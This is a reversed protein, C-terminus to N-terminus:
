PLIIEKIVGLQPDVDIFDTSYPEHDPHIVWIKVKYQLSLLGLENGNEDTQLFEIGFPLCDLPTKFFGNEDTMSHYNQGEITDLYYNQSMLTLNVEDEYSGERMKLIYIGDVVQNGNSDDANWIISHSGADIYEDVLVIVTDGCIEEIWIQLLSESPIEYNITTSPRSRDPEESSDTTYKFLIAANSIPNGGGDRVTGSIGNQKVAEPETSCSIFFAFLLTYLLKM